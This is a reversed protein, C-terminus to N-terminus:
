MKSGRKYTCKKKIGKFVGYAAFFFFPLQLFAECLSFSRFWYALPRSTDMFPDGVTQVYATYVKKLIDPIIWEPYLSQLDILLTIPIHSTFYCFFIWDLPRELLPDMEKAFTDMHPTVVNVAPELTREVKRYIKDGFVVAVELKDLFAEM